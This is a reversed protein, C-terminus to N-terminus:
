GQHGDEEVGGGDEEPQLIHAQVDDKGFVSRIDDMLQESVGRGNEVKWGPIVGFGESGNVDESPIIEGTQAMYEEGTIKSPFLIKM